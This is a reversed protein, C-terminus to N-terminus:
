PISTLGGVICFNIGGGNLTGAGPTTSISVSDGSNGILNLGSLNVVPNPSSTPATTLIPVDTLLIGGATSFLVAITLTTQVTGTTICALDIAINNIFPYKGAVGAIVTGGVFNAGYYAKGYHLNRRVDSTDFGGQNIMYGGNYILAELAADQVQQVLSSSAGAPWVNAPTPFNLLNASITGNGNFTVVGDPSLYLPMVGQYGAPIIINQGVATSVTLAVTGASNDM